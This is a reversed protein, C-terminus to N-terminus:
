FILLLVPIIELSNLTIQVLAQLLERYEERNTEM